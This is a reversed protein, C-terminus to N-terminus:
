EDRTLDVYDRTLDITDQLAAQRLELANRRIQQMRVRCMPCSVGGSVRRWGNVCEPHYVHGCMMNVADNAAIPEYCIPCQEEVVTQDGPQGTSVFEPEKEDVRHPDHPRLGPLDSFDLARPQLPQVVFVPLGELLLARLHEYRTRRVPAGPAQSPRERPPPSAAPVNPLKNEAPPAARLRALIESHRENEALVARLEAQRRHEVQRKYPAHRQTIRPRLKRRVQEVTQSRGPHSM